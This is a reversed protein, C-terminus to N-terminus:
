GILWNSVIVLAQIVATMAVMVGAVLFGAEVAATSKAFNMVFSQNVTSERAIM